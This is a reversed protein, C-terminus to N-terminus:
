SPQCYKKLWATIEKITKKKQAVALIFRYGQDQPMTLTYGNARLFLSTVTIATRKNGDTFVHYTAIGELYAAAKSFVDPYFEVGMMGTKPRETISQLLRIDRIGKRGGIAALIRDHVALVEEATLYRM